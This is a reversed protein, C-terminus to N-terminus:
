RILTFTGKMAPRGKKFQIHYVFSGSSQEKGKFKGDWDIIKGEAHYVLQGFRNYVNVTAGLVPDLFPIRWRDNLGDNNPTFATPVFIGAVVKLLVADQNSCGFSSIANLTYLQQQKPSAIPDLQNINSLYDPPDWYFSPNDGTVMGNLTVTDGVFMVRDDGANVIPKTHVHIVLNESAIRCFKNSASAQENVSLRYLFIGALTPNRQYTISNAGPIDQWSRGTDKSEQWQYM